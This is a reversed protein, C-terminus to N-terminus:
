LNILRKKGLPRTQNTKLSSMSKNKQMLCPKQEVYDKYLLLAWLQLLQKISERCSSPLDM